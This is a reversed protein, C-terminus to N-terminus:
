DARPEERSRPLSVGESDDRFLQYLLIAGFTLYLKKTISM